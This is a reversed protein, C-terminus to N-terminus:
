DDESLALCTFEIFPNSQKGDSIVTPMQFQFSLVGSEDMRLSTRISGQLAKQIKAIHSFRYTFQTHEECEFSQLVERDNPFDLETSGYASIGLLRFTPHAGVDRATSTRRGTPRPAQSSNGTSTIPLAEDPPACIIALKETSSDLESLAGSLWSSKMIIKIVKDEDNFDLEMHPESEMTNLKCTTTPGSADESLTLSIPYGEGEYLMRMGTLKGGKDSSLLFREIGGSTNADAFEGEDGNAGWKGRGRGRGGAAGTGFSSPMSGVAGFIDLVTLLAALDIEFSVSNEADAPPNFDYTDFM